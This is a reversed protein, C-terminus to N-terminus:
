TAAAEAVFQCAVGSSNTTDTESPAALRAVTVAAM